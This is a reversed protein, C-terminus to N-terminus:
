QKKIGQSGPLYTIGQSHSLPSEFYYYNHYKSTQFTHNHTMCIEPPFFGSFHISVINLDFLRIVLGKRGMPFTLVDIISYYLLLRSILVIFGLKKLNCTDFAWLM